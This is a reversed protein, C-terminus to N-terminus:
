FRLLKRTVKMMKQVHDVKREMLQSKKLDAKEQSKFRHIRQRVEEIDKEVKIVAKHIDELRKDLPMGGYDYTEYAMEFDKEFLELEKMLEAIKRIIDQEETLEEQTEEYEERADIFADRLESFEEKTTKLIWGYDAKDM